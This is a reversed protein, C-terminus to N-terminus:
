EYREPRYEKVILRSQTREFDQQAQHYGVERMSDFYLVYFMVGLLLFVFIYQVGFIVSSPLPRGSFKQFTAIAMHGGDLVPIPLLNLIALNINLLVAFWLAMTWDWQSIRYLSTTIGVVGSLHRMGIDSAPSILSSLTRFTREIHEQFQELPNQQVYVWELTPGFGLMYQQRPSDFEVSAGAPLDRKRVQDADNVLTVSIPGDGAHQRYAQMLQELSGVEVGDLESIRWDGQSKFLSEGSNLTYLALQSPSAPSAPDEKMDLKYQPIIVFSPDQGQALYIHAAPKEVPVPLPEVQLDMPKGDREIGVTVTTARKEELISMLQRISYIRQGDVSKVFDGLQMGAKQAPFDELLDGVTMNDIPYIGIQRIRDGSAENNIVLTPHVVIEQQQGDREITFVTQPQGESDRGSGLAVIEPVQKFSDVQEGDIAIIRDGPQLGAQYAPGPQGDELTPAVYGIQPSESGQLVPYGTYWGICAVLVALILNFFPGAFAVYMKDAYSIPPLPEKKTENEGELGSMEAMQPLAVYAGFPIACICYEVGDKGKWSVLKPGLGFLSFRDVRLGRWRAALFHGLEHIIISGNFFLLVLFIGWASTFLTQIFTTDAM